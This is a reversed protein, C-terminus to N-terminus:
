HLFRDLVCVRLISRSELIAYTRMIQGTEYARQANKNEAPRTPHSKQLGAPGKSPYM